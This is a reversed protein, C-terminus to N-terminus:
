TIIQIQHCIESDTVCKNLNKIIEFYPIIAKFQTREIKDIKLIILDYSYPDEEEKNLIINITFIPKIM